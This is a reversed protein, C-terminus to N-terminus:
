KRDVKLVEPRQVGTGGTPPNLVDFDGRPKYGNSIIRIDTVRGVPQNYRAYYKKIEREELWDAILDCIWALFVIPLIILFMILAIVFNSDLMSIFEAIM